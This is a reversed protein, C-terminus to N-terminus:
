RRKKDKATGLVVAATTLVLIWTAPNLLIPVTQGLQSCCQM